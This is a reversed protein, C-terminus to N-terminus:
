TTFFTWLKKGISVEGPHETEEDGDDDEEGRCESGYEDENGYDGAGEILENVEESLEMNEEVLKRTYTNGEDSNAVTEFGDVRDASVELIEVISKSATVQVLHTSGGNENGVEVSPSLADKPSPAEDGTTGGSGDAEREKGKTLDASPLAAAVTGATKPRRLNYRKEGPTQVAQAVTQRRKRQRGATVSDSRVESDNADQESTTTRSTHAHHRKRRISTAGRDALSSEGRSDENIGASDETNGNPQEDENEEPTKGLIVKADEVVAKVSRTRHAGPRRKKSPQLRSRNLESHQSDEPVEQVKSIINNQDVISSTPGGEVERICNDSQIRQVDCSHSAIGFSPELEDEATGQRKSAEEINVQMFSVPSEEAPGQGASHEIKKGPSLNFIKSTCKRLWSMHGGSAPSGSGNVVPSSEISPRESAAMNGQNSEKLYNEALRPLPLVEKNELELLSQLDSLMFESTIEGCNKCSKHKDVFSLFRGREKIFQERQDKLKESLIGLEDIDKRMELQNEELHKTNAAVEQKEKEIRARELKLEEMDRRAVERLYNINNLERQREEEFVREREQLRKEMEEQRNQLNTELERKLLEFDHLMQSHENQTKEAIVSQDHEMSAAFSEKELRLAELERQIYEQTALKENKLREEESHNLKELRAKEEVVEKLEQAIEARKEDLADWEREFNERQQKLDEREKLILEKQFRCNDIEQKLESQLCLHESREEETLKLNEREGIIKLLEEENDARIKELETKLIQLNEKNGIMQEKEAELHKEEAKISKEREKLARSKSELDKEKEKSKELKKELAQERKGIKEEKHNIEVEKQEVALVKSKLEEDLSKRKKDMELEFECKKADLVSNHEDLLKQIEVRERADLKEKLTLLETERMELNRKTSIAEALNALRNNIDDEKKKLTSNTIEIKKQSEELDKEKLKATRDNENAREERQNLIRRGECLREEGEQLKREWERLDERQKSFTAEHAERESNLSLRESRLVSERVEVDQLKREIESSKRSAEAFKADAAHLKAEAELSREEISAVLANAEALKTDSTFKIEAHEARMGRLDKELDAVCQKEVGVAKRLNDERKEVESMAIVHAIQERKLIEQAEALAQRFEEYKSTWEKKEILLLGMNYQYEFLENELKSIKVVLAERDKRELSAEDLLGAERFRRWAETDGGGDGNLGPVTKGENEGLFGLPTSPEELFAVTKGKAVTGDGGGGNSPNSVSGVGNKQTESRPTLSWRSWVKRQPTFM